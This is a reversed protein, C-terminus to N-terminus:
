ALFYEALDLLHNPHETHLYHKLNPDHLNSRSRYDSSCSPNRLDRNRNFFKFHENHNGKHLHDIQGKHHGRPSDFVWQDM